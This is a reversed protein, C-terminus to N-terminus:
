APRMTWSRVRRLDYLKTYHISYSTIVDREGILSSDVLADSLVVHNHYPFSLYNHKIGAKNDVRLHLPM